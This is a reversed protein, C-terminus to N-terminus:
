ICKCKVCLVRVVAWECVTVSVFIGTYEWIYVVCKFEISSECMCVMRLRKGM